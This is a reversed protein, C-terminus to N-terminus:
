LASILVIDSIAVILKKDITLLNQLPRAKRATQNFAHRDDDLKCGAGVVVASQQM